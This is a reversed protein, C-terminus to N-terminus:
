KDQYDFMHARKDTIDCLLEIKERYYSPLGPDQCWGLIENRLHRYAQQVEYLNAAIKYNAEDAYIVSLQYKNCVEKFYTHRDKEYSVTAPGVLRDEFGKTHIQRCLQWDDYIEKNVACIWGEGTGDTNLKGFVYTGPKWISLDITNDCSAKISFVGEAYGFKSLGTELKIYPFRVEKVKGVDTM